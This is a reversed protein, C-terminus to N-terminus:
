RTPWRQRREHEERRRRDRVPRKRGGASRRGSAAARRVGPRQLVGRRDRDAPQGREGARADGPARRRAGPRGAARRQDAGSAPRGQGAAGPCARRNARAARPRGARREQPARGPGPGRRGGQEQARPRGGRPHARLAAARKIVKRLEEGAVTTGDGSRLEVNQTGVDLLHNELAAEDKLYTESKAKKVRYLPPQAIFINGHEILEPFHRYFFTLLLTRIHSGDVDADTMIIVTHYRLKSTDKDEKGIGTGLATILVRIEQSSIM